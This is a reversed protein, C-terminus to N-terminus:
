NWITLSDDCNYHLFLVVLHLSDVRGKFALSISDCQIWKHILVVICHSVKLLSFKWPNSVRAMGLIKASFVNQLYGCFKLIQPDKRQQFDGVTHHRVWLVIFFDLGSTTAKLTRPKRWIKQLSCVDGYQPVKQTTTITQVRHGLYYIAHNWMVSPIVLLWTMTMQFWVWSVQSSSGTSQWQALVVLCM